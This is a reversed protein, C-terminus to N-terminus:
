HVGGEVDPTLADEDDGDPVTGAVIQELTVRGSHTHAHQKPPAGAYYALLTKFLVSEIRCELIESVLRREFEPDRLVKDFVRALFAKLEATSKNPTGATRGGTKQRM